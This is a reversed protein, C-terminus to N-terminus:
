PHVETRLVHIARGAAIMATVEEVPLGYHKAVRGATLFNNLYDLYFAQLAAALVRGDVQANM